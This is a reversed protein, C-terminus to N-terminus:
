DVVTPRQKYQVDTNATRQGLRRTKADTGHLDVSASMSSSIWQLHAFLSATATNLGRVLVTSLEFDKYELVKFM